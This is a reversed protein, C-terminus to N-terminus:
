AIISFAEHAHVLGRIIDIILNVVRSYRHDPWLKPQSGAIPDISPFAPFPYFGGKWFGM